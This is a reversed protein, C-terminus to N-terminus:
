LVGVDSSGTRSSHRASHREGSLPYPRYASHIRGRSRTCLQASVAYTPPLPIDEELLEGLPQRVPIPSNNELAPLDQGSSSSESSPYMLVDDTFTEMRRGCCLRLAERADAPSVPRLPFSPSPISPQSIPPTAYSSASSADEAYELGEDESSDEEEEVESPDAIVGEVVAPVVPDVLKPCRCLREEWSELAEEWSAFIREQDTMRSDLGQVTEELDHVAENFDIVISDVRADFSKGMKVQDEELSKVQEELM